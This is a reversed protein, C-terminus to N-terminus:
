FHHKGFLQTYCDPLKVLIHIALLLIFCFFHGPKVIILKYGQQIDSSGTLM